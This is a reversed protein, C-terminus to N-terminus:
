TAPGPATLAIYVWLRGGGVRVLQVRAALPIDAGAISVEDEEVPPLRLTPALRVPIEIRSLLNNLESAPREALEDLLRGGPATLTGLRVDSTEFGLIEIRSTLTGTAAEIDLVQLAGVVDIRVSVNERDVWEVTTALRVLALGGSFDVRASDATIRFRDDVTTQVPLAVTLLQDVLTAPVVALAGAGAVDVEGLAADRELAEKQRLLLDRELRQVLPEDRQCGFGCAALLVVLYVPPHSM